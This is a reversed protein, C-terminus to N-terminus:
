SDSDVVLEAQEQIALILNMSQRAPLEGLLAVVDNILEYPFSVRQGPTLEANPDIM